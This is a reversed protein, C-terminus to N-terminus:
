IGLFDDRLKIYTEVVCGPCFEIKKIPNDGVLEACDLGGFRDYFWDTLDRQARAPDDKPFDDVYLMAAAAALTGCVKGEGMGECFAAMAAVLADDEKGFDELCLTAIVQSCCLGRMLEARAREEPGARNENMRDM